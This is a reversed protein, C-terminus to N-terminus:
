IYSIWLKVLMLSCELMHKLFFHLYPPSDKFASEYISRNTSAHTMFTNNCYMCYPTPFNLPHYAQSCRWKNLIVSCGSQMQLITSYVGLKIETLCLIETTDPDNGQLKTVNGFKSIFHLFHQRQFFKPFSRHLLTFIQNEEFAVVFATKHFNNKTRAIKFSPLYFSASM